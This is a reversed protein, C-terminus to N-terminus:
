DVDGLARELAGWRSEDGPELRRAANLLTAPDGGVQQAAHQFLRGTYTLGRHVAHDFLAPEGMPENSLLSGLEHVTGNITVTSRLVPVLYHEFAARVQVAQVAPDHAAQLFPKWLAPDDHLRTVAHWGRWHKSGSSVVLRGPVADLGASQFYREYEAPAQARIRMMLAPLGGTAAFQIFGWSFRARDYTQLADFGGELASVAAFLAGRAPDLGQQELMAALEAGNPRLVGDFRHGRYRGHTAPQMTHVRGAVFITV